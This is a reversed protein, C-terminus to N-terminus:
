PREGEAEAGGSRGYGSGDPRVLDLRALAVNYDVLAGVERSRAGAARAEAQLLEAATALGEEFRRRLLSRAEDAARAAARTAELAGHSARVDRRAQLTEARATRRADEHRIRAIERLQTSRQRDAVREFGAFVTWRLAVGVTWDSGDVDFAKAAHGSWGAFAELRPLFSLGARRAESTAAARVAALSRVDARRGAAIAEPAARGGDGSPPSPPPPSALTDVPVPVRDVDWGLLLALEERAREADRAAALRQAEAARLEAEAQLVDAETLLGRGARRRFLELTAAAAAEEAEAAERAAETGAAAFYLAKTRFVTQERSWEEEWDAADVRSRAAARGAWATADLPAWRLGVETSWDNIAGPRNLADPDFDAATFREQRLRTGFAFVPDISRTFGAGAEVGPLLPATAAKADARAIAARSAAIRQAPNGALAEDIAERLTLPVPEPVAEQAFSRPGAPSVPLALLSLLGVAVPGALSTRRRGYRMRMRTM